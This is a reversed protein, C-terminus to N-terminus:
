ANSTPIFGLEFENSAKKRMETNLNIYDALWASQQFELVRHVKGVILGNAIAQKLNRYHVIYREKRELTAMLKNVKSGPPVTNQPLFPLDNHKDHLNDPYAIDVEYIRGVNSKDTMVDLLELSRDLDGDYWKFGGHPMYEGM